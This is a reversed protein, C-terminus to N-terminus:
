TAEIMVNRNILNSTIVPYTFPPNTRTGLRSCCLSLLLLEPLSEGLRGTDTDGLRGTDGLGCDDGRRAWCFLGLDASFRLPFYTRSNM